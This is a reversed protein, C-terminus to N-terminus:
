HREKNKSNKGLKEAEVVVEQVLKGDKNEDLLSFAAQDYQAQRAHYEKLADNIMKESQQIAANAQQKMMDQMQSAMGGGLMGGMMQLTVKQSQQAQFKGMSKTFKALRTIYHDFFAQSEDVDLIGNEKTDHHDFARAIIPRLKIHQQQLRQQNGAGDQLLALAQNVNTVSNALQKTERELTRFYEDLNPATTEDEFDMCSGCAGMIRQENRQISNSFFPKLLSQCESVTRAVGPVVVGELVEQMFSNVHRTWHLFACMAIQSTGVVHSFSLVACSGGKVCKAGRRM